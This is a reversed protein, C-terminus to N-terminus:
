QYPYSEQSIQFSNRESFTQFDREVIEPVEPNFKPDFDTIM